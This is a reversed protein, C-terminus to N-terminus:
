PPCDGDRQLQGRQWSPGLGHLEAHLGPWQWLGPATGALVVLKRNPPWLQSPSAACTVVSPTTDITLTKATEINGLNDTGFFQVTTVGEASITFSTSPGSVIKETITQAGSSLYSIPKVGIRGSDSDTSNLTITVDRNQWGDANPLPSVIATTVPPTVWTTVVRGRLQGAVTYVLLSSGAGDSALALDEYGNGPLLPAM